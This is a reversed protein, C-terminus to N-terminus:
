KSLANYLAVSLQARTMYGAPNLKGDSGNIIGAGVLASVADTFWSKVEDADSFASLDGADVPAVGKVAM